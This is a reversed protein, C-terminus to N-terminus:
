YGEEDEAIEVACQSHQAAGKVQVHSSKREPAHRGCQKGEIPHLLECLDMMQDEEKQLSSKSRVSLWSTSCLLEQDIAAGAM